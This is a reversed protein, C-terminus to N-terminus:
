WQAVQSAWESGAWWSAFAIGVNVLLGLIKSIRRRLHLFVHSFVSFVGM